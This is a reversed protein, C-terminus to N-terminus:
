LKPPFNELISLIVDNLEPQNDKEFDSNLKLFGPAIGRWVIETGKDIIDIVLSGDEYTSVSTYGCPQWWPHFKDLIEKQQESTHILIVFDVKDKEILTFGRQEFINSINSRIKNRLIINKSLADNSDIEADNAWRYTKYSSFIHTHDYDRTINSSSCASFLFGLSIILFIFLLSKKHLRNVSLFPDNNIFSTNNLTNNKM